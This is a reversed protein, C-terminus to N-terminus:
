MNFDSKAAASAALRIPRAAQPWVVEVVVSEVVILVVVSVDIDDGVVSVLMDGDVSVLMAGVVVDVVVVEVLM